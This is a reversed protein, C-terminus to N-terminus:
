KRIRRFYSFGNFYSCNGFFFNFNIRGFLYNRRLVAVGLIEGIILVMIIKLIISSEMSKECIKM